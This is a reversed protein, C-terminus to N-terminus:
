DPDRTYTTELDRETIYYETDRYAKELTELSVTDASYVAVVNDWGLDFGTVVFVKAM